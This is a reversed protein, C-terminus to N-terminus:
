ELCFDFNLIKFNLRTTDVTDGSDWAEGDEGNKFKKEAIASRIFPNM